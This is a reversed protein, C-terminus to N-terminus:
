SKVDAKRKETSVWCVIPYAYFYFISENRVIYMFGISLFVVLVKRNENENESILYIM